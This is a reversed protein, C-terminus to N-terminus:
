CATILVKKKKKKYMNRQARSAEDALMMRLLDAGKHDKNDKNELYEESEPDVQAAASTIYPGDEDSHNSEDMGINTEAEQELRKIMQWIENENLEDLEENSITIIGIRTHVLSDDALREIRYSSSVCQIKPKPYVVGEVLPKDDPLNFLKPVYFNVYDNVHTHQYLLQLCITLWACIDFYPDSQVVRPCIEHTCKNWCDTICYVNTTPWVVFRASYKINHRQSKLALCDYPYNRCCNLLIEMGNHVYDINSMGIDIINPTNHNPMTRFKHEGDPPYFDDSFIHVFTDSDLIPAWTDHIFTNVFNPEYGISINSGSQVINMIQGIVNIENEDDNDVAMLGPMDEVENAMISTTAVSRESHMSMDDDSKDSETVHMMGCRLVVQQKSSIEIISIDSESDMIEEIRASSAHVKISPGDTKLNTKNPKTLKTSKAAVRVPVTNSKPCNRAIHGDGECIFYKAAAQLEELKKNSKNYGDTDM